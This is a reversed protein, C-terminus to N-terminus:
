YFVTVSQRRVCFLMTALTVQHCLLKYLFCALSGPRVQHDCVMGRYLEDMTSHATTAGAPHNARTLEVPETKLASGLLVIHRSAELKDRWSLITSRIMNTLKVQQGAM